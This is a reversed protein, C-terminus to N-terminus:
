TAPWSVVSLLTWESFSRTSVLAFPTRNELTLDFPHASLLLCPIILLCSTFLCDVLQVTTPKNANGAKSPLNFLPIEYNEYM